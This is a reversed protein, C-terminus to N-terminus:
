RGIPRVMGVRGDLVVMLRDAPSRHSAVVTDKAHCALRLRPLVESALASRDLPDQIKQFLLVRGFLARNVSQAVGQRLGEPLLTMIEQLQADARDRVLKFSTWARIRQQLATPVRNIRLFSDVGEMRESLAVEEKSSLQMVDHMDGMLRSFLCTSCVM